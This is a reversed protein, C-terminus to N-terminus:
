GRRISWVEATITGVWVDEGSKTADDQRLEGGPPTPWWRVCKAGSPYVLVRDVGEDLLM